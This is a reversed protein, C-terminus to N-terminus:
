SKAESEVTILRGFALWKKFWVSVFWRWDRDPRKRKGASGATHKNECQTRVSENHNKKARIPRQSEKPKLKVVSEIM